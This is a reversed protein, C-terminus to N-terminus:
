INAKRLEEESMGFYHGIEHMVVERVKLLIEEETRCLAEISKKYISIKDPLVNGYRYGRKGLPVGHYLGLLHLPNKVGFRLLVDKSPVDEVVIIINEMKRLFKTPLDDLSTKVLKEFAIKNM